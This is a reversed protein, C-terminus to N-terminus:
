YSNRVTRLLSSGHPQEGNGQIVIVERWNILPRIRIDLYKTVNWNASTAKEEIFDLCRENEPGRVVIRVGDVCWAKNEIEHVKM